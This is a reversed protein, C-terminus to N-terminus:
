AYLLAETELCHKYEQYTFDYRGKAEKLIGLQIALDAGLGPEMTIHNKDICDRFCVIVDSTNLGETPIKKMSLAM